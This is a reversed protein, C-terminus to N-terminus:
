ETVVLAGNANGLRSVGWPRSCRFEYTGANKPTVEITVPKEPTLKEKIGFDKFRIGYTDDRSTFTIRITEGRKIRVHGPIIGGESATISYNRVQGGSRAAAAPAKAQREDPQEAIVPGAILAIVGLAALLTLGRRFQSKTSM